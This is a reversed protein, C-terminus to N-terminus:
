SHDVPNLTYLRVEDGDGGGGGGQGGGRAGGGGSGGFGGAMKLKKLPKLRYIESVATSIRRKLRAHSAKLATLEKNVKAHARQEQALSSPGCERPTDLNTVHIRSSVLLFVCQLPRRRVDCCRAM